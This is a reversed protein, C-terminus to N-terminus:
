SLQQTPCLSSDLFLLPTEKDKEEDGCSYRQGGPEFFLWIYEYTSDGPDAHFPCLRYLWRSSEPDTALAISRV